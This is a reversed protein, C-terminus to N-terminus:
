PFKLGYLEKLVREVASRLDTIEDDSVASSARQHILKNRIGNYHSLKKWLADPLNVFKRVETIVAHRTKFLDLLKADTYYQGSDNVLYEKIAIELTSDLVILSIRNGQELHQKQIIDAAVVGEYLGKTWPKEKGIKKNMEMVKEGFKFRSKPLPPLYSTNVSPFDKVQVSVIKGTKHSFVKKPWEGMWIRSLTAFEKVASTIWVHLSQFVEHKTSIDSKSSNWPM